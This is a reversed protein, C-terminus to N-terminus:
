ENPVSKLKISNVFEKLEKPDMLESEPINSYKHDIKPKTSIPGKINKKWDNPNRRDWNCVTSIWNIYKAGKSESYDMAAHYYYKIKEIPWNKKELEIKFFNKDFYISNKFLTKKNKNEKNEIKDNNDLNDLNNPKQLNNINGTKPDTVTRRSDPYQGDVTRRSDTKSDPKSDTKKSRYFDGSGKYNKVEFKILGHRNKPYEIDLYVELKKITLYVKRRDWGLDSGVSEASDQFKGRDKGLPKVRLLCYTFLKVEADSM